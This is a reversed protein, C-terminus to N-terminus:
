AVNAAFAAGLYREIRLSTADDHPANGLVVAYIAGQWGQNGRDSGIRATLGTALANTADTGANLQTGDVRIRWPGPSAFSASYVRTASTGPSYTASAIAVTNDSNIRVVSGTTVVLDFGANGSGGSVLANASGFATARAVVYVQRIDIPATTDMRATSAWAMGPTPAAYSPQNAGVAQGAHRGNGTLDKWQAVAASDAPPAASIGNPFRADFWAAVGPLAALQLAAVHATGKANDRIAREPASLTGDGLLTM